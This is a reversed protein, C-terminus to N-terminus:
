YIRVHSPYVELEMPCFEKNLQLGEKTSDPISQVGQFNTKKMEVDFKRDHLDGPGVIKVSKGHIEMTHSGKCSKLVLVIGNDTPPLIDM